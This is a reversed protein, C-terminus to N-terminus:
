GWRWHIVFVEGRRTERGLVLLCERLVQMGSKGFFCNPYSYIKVMEMRGLRIELDLSWRDRYCFVYNREESEEGM